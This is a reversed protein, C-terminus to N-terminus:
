EHFQRIREAQHGLHWLTLGLSYRAGLPEDVVPAPQSQPAALGSATALLLGLTGAWFRMRAADIGARGM